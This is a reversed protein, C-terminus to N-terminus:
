QLSELEIMNKTIRNVQAKPEVDPDPLPDFYLNKYCDLLEMRIGKMEDGDETTSSNNDKHWILHLM